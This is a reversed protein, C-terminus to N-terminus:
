EEEALRLMASARGGLGAYSPTQNEALETRAQELKSELDAVRKEAESLSTSLGSREGALQRVHADVADKDYGRRVVPFHASGSGPNSGSASGSGSPTRPAAPTAAPPLVPGPTPRAATPTSVPPKSAPPKAPAPAPKAPPVVRQQQTREAAPEESKKVVPMVQTAEADATDDPADAEPENDFISLGQDSM